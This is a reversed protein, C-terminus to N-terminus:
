RPRKEKEEILACAHERVLMRKRSGDHLGVHTRLYGHGRRGVVPVVGRQTCTRGLALPWTSVRDEAPHAAHARADVTLAVRRERRRSGVATFTAPQCPSRSRQKDSSRPQASAPSASAAKASSAAERSAAAAAAVSRASGVDTHFKCRSRMHAPPACASFARESSAATAASPLTPICPM